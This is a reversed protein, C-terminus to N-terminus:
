RCRQRGLTKKVHFKGGCMLLARSVMGTTEKGDRSGKAADADRDESGSGIVASRKKRRSRDNEADSGSADSLAVRKRKRGFVFSSCFVHRHSM